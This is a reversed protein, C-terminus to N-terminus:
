AATTEPVPTLLQPQITITKSPEITPTISVVEAPTSLTSTPLATKASPAQEMHTIFYVSVPAVITTVVVMIIQFLKNDSKGEGAM